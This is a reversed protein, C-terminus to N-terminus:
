AEREPGAIPSSRSLSVPVGSARPMATLPDIDEHTSTLTGPGAARRGHTISVVGPAVRPDIAVPATIAGHAGAVTLADGDVVGAAGADDPHIRVTPEDGSGSYRMSNSWAMERRPALVLGAPPSTHGALRALLPAPALNWQQDPLLSERVWGYAVPVDIGRSGAAFVDSPDLSSHALVGRLFLEDTLLDPDVGGLAVVGMHRSLSALIWWVPRRGGAPAVVPYTAQLGSRVATLEALTVDARELQGTASLVHTALACLENDEVDIVVLADLSQLAARTRDPEPFAIIPNGGTVVLARLRGSEIEDVL